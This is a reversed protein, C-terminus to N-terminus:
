DAYTYEGYGNMKDQSMFGEYKRGDMYSMIGFGHMLNECM